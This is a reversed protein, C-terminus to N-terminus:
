GLEGERGVAPPQSYAVVVIGEREPIGLGPLRNSGEPHPAIEVRKCKGLSAVEQSIGCGSSLGHANDAEISPVFYFAKGLGCVRRVQGERGILGPKENYAVVAREGCPVYGGLLAQGTRLERRGVEAIPGVGNHKGGVATQQGKPHLVAQADPFQIGAPLGLDSESVRFGRRRSQAKRRVAFQQRRTNPPRVAFDIDPGNLIKQRDAPGIGLVM